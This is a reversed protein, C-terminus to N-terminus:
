DIAGQLKESDIANAESLARSAPSPQFNRRLFYLFFSRRFNVIVQLDTNQM